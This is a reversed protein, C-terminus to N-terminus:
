GALAVSATRWPGTAPRAPIADGRRWAEVGRALDELSQPRLGVIMASEDEALDFGALAETPARTLLRLFEADIAGRCVVHQLTQASM